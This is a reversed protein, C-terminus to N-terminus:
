ASGATDGIEEYAPIGEPYAKERASLSDSMAADRRGAELGKGAEEPAAQKQRSVSSAEGSSASRKKKLTHSCHM